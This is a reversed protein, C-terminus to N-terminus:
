GFVTLRINLYMNFYYIVITHYTQQLVETLFKKLNRNLCHLESIESM